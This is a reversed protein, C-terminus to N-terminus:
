GEDEPTSMLGAIDQVFNPRLDLEGGLRYYGLHYASEKPSVYQFGAVNEFKFAGTPCILVCTGCGICRSSTVQFPTAVKKAIGRQIVSIANVGVIEDCARVCLGCLVCANEEELKFRVDKVGLEEGLALIEPTNYSGALILEATMRRSRVVMESNTKVVAGEECPYVCSAVIRSRGNPFIVEVVCLRCGGYPELAPHYCLTPIHIGHERCAELLSRGEQVEIPKDDITLHIM